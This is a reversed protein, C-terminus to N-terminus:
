INKMKNHSSVNACMEVKVDCYYEYNLLNESKVGFIDTKKCAGSSSFTRMAYIFLHIRSMGDSDGDTLYMVSIAPQSATEEYSWNYAM